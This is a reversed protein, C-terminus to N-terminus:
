ENNNIFDKIDTFYKSLFKIKNIDWNWWQIDLLKKIEENTFRYRIIKTPVGGVIAYDPVDKTVCSCAAIIAGDGIKVGELITVNAGIWVDSGIELSYGKSTKKNEIFSSVKGNYGKGLISNNSYFLPSTSVFTSTPHTGVAISVNPGISCYSGIYANSFDCNSGISTFSNIESSVIRTGRGIFVNSKIKNNYLYVPLRCNSNNLFLNVIGLLLKLFKM